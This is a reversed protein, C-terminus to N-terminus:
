PGASDKALEASRRIHRMADQPKGVQEMLRALTMHAELTPQMAVSAELYSQAKGWLGQRMCLTGLAALLSAERPHKKLWSEACEIQATTSGSDAHAYCLVLLALADDWQALDSRDITEEIMKAADKGLGVTM